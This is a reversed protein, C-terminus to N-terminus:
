RKRKMETAVLEPVLGTIDGGLAAVEKVTRSAIYFYEEDTMMFVTDVEAALRRNMMTMQFEYEFDQVARLGRIVTRSGRNRVYDVLLGDFSEVKVQPRDIFIREMMEVREAVTFMAQKEPHRLVAVVVEDFVDLAREVINVHGLTMPDFSGPYIASRTM